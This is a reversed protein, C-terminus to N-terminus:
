GRRSKLLPLIAHLIDRHVGDPSQNADVRRITHGHSLLLSIAEEYRERVKTQTDVDEFMDEHNRGRRLRDSAVMPDVDLYVTLDPPIVQSNIQFVWELPLDLSQYALSSLVYRDSVVHVGQTLLHAIGPEQRGDDTKFVHDARDAAFLLAVTKPDLNVRHNLAMRAVNGAPGPTPEFTAACKGFVAGDGGFWGKLLAAQTTTGCGDLGELVIFVGTKREAEVSSSFTIM